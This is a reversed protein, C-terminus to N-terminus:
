VGLFGPALPVKFLGFSVGLYWFSSVCIGAVWGFYVGLCAFCCVLCGFVCM